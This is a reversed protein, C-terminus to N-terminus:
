LELEQGAEQAVARRYALDAAAVDEVALGLSKFITVDRPSRRGEVKGDLLEGLEGVIHSARFLGEQIGLVVDGSEALAAARSDVFLRGRQVLAPDMERQDPRFAGISIVHAGAKIWESQVVPQSSSTALVVLDAGHAAQEASDVGIIRTKTTSAMEEIFAAQHEATPSWVRVESLEFVHDLALLHSRAQAGSGIIALVAADDRALLTASVASVAATRAETIARGGLVALLAGTEPSFLLVTALHTPLDLATNRNFITVVKAGLAAPERVYAPMVAMFEQGSGIPVVTRVPQVVQGSSFGRLAREMAEILGDMTLLGAVDLETLLRFFTRQFPPEVDDPAEEGEADSRDDRGADDETAILDNCTAVCEDCIWVDPGAILDSGGAPAKGCFSCQLGESVADQAAIKQLTAV